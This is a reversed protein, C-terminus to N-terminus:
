FVSCQSNYFLKYYFIYILIISCNKQPKTMWSISSYPSAPTSKKQVIFKMYIGGYIGLSGLLLDSWREMLFGVGTVWFCFLSKILRTLFEFIQGEFHWLIFDFFFSLWFFFEGNRSFFFTSKFNISICVQWRRFYEELILLLFILFVLNSLATETQRSKM